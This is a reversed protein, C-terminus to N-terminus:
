NFDEIRTKAKVWVDRPGGKQFILRGRRQLEGAPAPM